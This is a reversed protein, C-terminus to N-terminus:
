VKQAAPRAEPSRGMKEIESFFVRRNEDMALNALIVATSDNLGIELGAKPQKNRPDKACLMFDEVEADVPNRDEEPVMIGKSYLWRRAFKAERTLFSDKANMADRPLLLPVGTSAAATTMTAGAKFEEKKKAAETVTPPTIPKPERYWLATAPHNDDGVTIEITGATGMIVEGFEVRQAQLLDLHSSTSISSYLLKRGKPYQFILQINDYCTRGDKYFDLGGVGVVFEPTAGFILDAVDIQHSALEATNGGSFERYMRWNVKKELSADPVPRRQNSNRHWQGRIHTVEGLVGQDIMQKATAYFQSYRRQLGTQLVLDPLTGKLARLAHVEEPKFVLSKECFCHKGALLVDKTVTFHLYLPVVVFVADIDKRALLERYDRYAAPNTGVTDVGKKLNVDWDDCVAVCRGVDTTKLHKLLYTGRSGTGIMGYQVQENAARVKQIFPFGEVKGPLAAAVTTVAGAAVVFDRRTVDQQEAM